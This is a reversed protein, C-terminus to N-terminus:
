ATPPPSTGHSTPPRSQCGGAADGGSIRSVAGMVADLSRRDRLVPADGAYVGCARMMGTMRGMLGRWRAMVPGDPWAEGCGLGARAMVYDRCLGQMGSDDDDMRPLRGAPMMMM